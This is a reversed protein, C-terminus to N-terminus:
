DRYDPESRDLDRKWYDFHAYGMGVYPEWEAATKAALNDSMIALPQGTGYAKLLTEAAREFFYLHEFAEAVTVASISVGHNGMVLVPKDGLTEAIRRGEEAEDAMGGFGLDVAVKGFFRATNLDIPKMSPDQLTALATANPPHCHFLVRAKPNERHVTGHICWASPDPANEGAMVMEDNADLLLLDSARIEGFHRWKPNMLFKSGDESVAASFHNGVSESWGFKVALRFAAALDERLAQESQRGPDAGFRVDTVVSM